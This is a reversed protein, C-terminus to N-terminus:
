ILLERLIPIFVTAGIITAGVACILVAGAAIDKAQKIGPHFCPSIVDCLAEIATNFLESSWVLVIAIILWLWDRSDLQLACALALVLLSCLCHIQLNREGALACRIGSAAHKFSRLRQTLEDRMTLEANKM